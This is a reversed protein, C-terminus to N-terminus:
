ITLAFSSARYFVFFINPYIKLNLKKYFVKIFNSYM